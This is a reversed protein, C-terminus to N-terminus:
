VEPAGECFGLAYGKTDVVYAPSRWGHTGPLICVPGWRHRYASWWRLTPTMVRPM